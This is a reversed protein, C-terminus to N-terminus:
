QGVTGRCVLVGVTVRSDLQVLVCLCVLQVGVTWSHGTLQVTPFTLQPKPTPQPCNASASSAFSLRFIHLLGSFACFAAQLSVCFVRLPYNVAYFIYLIYFPPCPSGRMIPRTSNYFQLNPFM